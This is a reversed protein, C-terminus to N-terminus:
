RVVVLIRQVLNNSLGHHNWRQETPQVRDTEDTARVMLEYAGAEATWGHSWRRWAYM